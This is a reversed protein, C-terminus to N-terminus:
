IWIYFDQVLYKLIHTYKFISTILNFHARGALTHGLGTWSTNKYSSSILFCSLCWPRTRVFSLGHSSVTLLCGCALSFTRLPFWFQQCRSRPGGTELILLFLNRNKLSGLRHYKTIVAWAFQYLSYPLFVCFIHCIRLLCSVM